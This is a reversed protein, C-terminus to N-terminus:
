CEHILLRGACCVLAVRLWLWVCGFHVSSLGLWSWFWFQHFRMNYEAKELCQCEQQMQINSQLHYLCPMRAAARSIRSSKGCCATRASLPRYESSCSLLSHIRIQCRRRSQVSMHSRASVRRSLQSVIGFCDALPNSADACKVM